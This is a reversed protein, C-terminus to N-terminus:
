HGPMGSNLKSPRDGCTCGSAHTAGVAVTTPSTTTSAPADIQYPATSRASKPRIM